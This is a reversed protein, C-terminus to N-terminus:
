IKGARSLRHIFEKVEPTASRWQDLYDRV